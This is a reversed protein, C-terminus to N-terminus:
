ERVEKALLHIGFLFFFLGIFGCVIRLLNSPLFLKYLSDGFKAVDEFPEALGKLADVVKDLGSTAADSVAGAAGSIADGAQGVLGGGSTDVPASSPPPVQPTPLTGPRGTTPTTPGSAPPTPIPQPTPTARSRQRSPM